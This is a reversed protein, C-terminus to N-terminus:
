SPPVLLFLMVMQKQHATIPSQHPAVIMSILYQSKICISHCYCRNIVGAITILLFAKRTRKRERQSPAPLLSACLSGSSFLAYGIIRWAGMQLSTSYKVRFNEFAFFAVIKKKKLMSFGGAASQLVQFQSNTKM